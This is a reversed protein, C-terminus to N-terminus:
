QGDTDTALQDHGLVRDLAVRSVVYRGGLRIAGPLEGRRALEYGLTRSIGLRKCADEVSTTESQVPLYAALSM